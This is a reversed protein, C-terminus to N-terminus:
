LMFFYNQKKKSLLKLKLSKFTNKKLNKKEKKTQKTHKKKKKKQIKLKFLLYKM